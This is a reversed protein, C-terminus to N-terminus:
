LIDDQTMSDPLASESAVRSNHAPPDSRNETGCDDNTNHRGFKSKGVVGVDPLWHATATFHRIPVLTVPSHYAPDSAILRYFASLFLQFRDGGPQRRCIRFLILVPGHLQLRECPRQDAIYTLWQP